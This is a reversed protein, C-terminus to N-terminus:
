KLVRAAANKPRTKRYAGVPGLGSSVGRMPRAINVTLSHAHIIPTAATGRDTWWGEKNANDIEELVNSDEEADSIAGLRTTGLV